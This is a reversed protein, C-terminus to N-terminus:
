RIYGFRNTFIKTVPKVRLPKGSDKRDTMKTTISAQLIYVGTGFRQGDRSIPLISFACALSDANGRMQEWRASDVAGKRSNLFQGLHDFITVQYSFASSTNFVFTPTHNPDLIADAVKQPNSLDGKHTLVAGTANRILTAGGRIVVPETVEAPIPVGHPADTARVVDIFGPASAVKKGPLRVTATERLDRPHTWTLVVEGGPAADLINNGKSANAVSGNLPYDNRLNITIAGSVSSQPMAINEVDSWGPQSTDSSTAVVIVDKLESTGRSLRIDYDTASNPYASDVGGAPNVMTLAPMPVCVLSQTTAAAAPGDAQVTVNFNRVDNDSMTIKVTLANAGQKLALISDMVPSMSGDPNRIVSTSKSVMPTPFSNNSVEISRPVTPVTIAQIIKTMVENMLAINQPKIQYFAGKTTDSMEKMRAFTASTDGLAITYIPIDKNGNTRLWNTLAGADSPEGDSIFVIAQKSSRIFATDTLWARAQNLAPVYNTRNISDLTISSKVLDSNGAISLQLPARLNGVIDAFALAGATSTPSNALLYDVAKEIVKGRAFYPDGAMSGAPCTGAADILRITRPGLLTNYTMTAGTTAGGGGGNCGAIHYFTTDGTTNIKASGAVMSGSNDYIFVIDAGAPKTVTFANKCLDFGNVSIRTANGATVIPTGGKQLAVLDLCAPEAGAGPTSELLLDCRLPAQGAAPGVALLAACPAARM